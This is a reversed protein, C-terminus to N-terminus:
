SCIEALPPASSSHPAPQGSGTGTGSPSSGSHPGLLARPVTSSAPLIPRTTATATTHAHLPLSSSRRSGAGSTNRFTGSAPAAAPAPRCLRAARSSRGLPHALAHTRRRLAAILSLALSPRPTGTRLPAIAPLTHGSSTSALYSVLIGVLLFESYSNELNM